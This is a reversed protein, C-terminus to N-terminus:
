NEEHMALLTLRIRSTKRHMVKVQLCASRLMASFVIRKFNRSKGPFPCNPHTHTTDYASLRRVYSQNQLRVGRILYSLCRIAYTFQM